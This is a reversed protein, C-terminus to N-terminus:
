WISESKSVCDVKVQYPDYERMQVKYPAVFDYVIGRWEVKRMFFVPIMATLHVVLALPMALSVRCITAHDMWRVPEGRKGIIVRM